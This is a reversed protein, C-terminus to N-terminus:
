TNYAKNGDSISIKIIDNIWKCTIQLASKNM